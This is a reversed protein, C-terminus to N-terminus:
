SKNFRKSQMFLLFTVYLMVEMMLAIPIAGRLLIQMDYIMVITGLTIVVYKLIRSVKINWVIVGLITSPLLMIIWFKVVSLALYEVIFYSYLYYAFIMAALFSFVNVGAWIRNKSSIAILTCIVVWIFAGTSVTGFSHFTDRLIGGQVAVDGAKALIGFIIGLIILGPVILYESKIRM